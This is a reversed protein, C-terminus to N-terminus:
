SSKSGAEAPFKPGDEGHHSMPMVLIRWHDEPDAIHIAKFKNVPIRLNVQAVQLPEIARALLNRDLFVGFLFGPRRAPPEDWQGKGDCNDCDVKGDECHCDFQIEYRCEDCTGEARGTGNCCKCTMTGTNSCSKCEHHKVMREVPGAWEKLAALDLGRPPATFDDFVGCIGPSMQELLPAENIVDKLAVMIWGDTAITWAQGHIVVSFPTLLKPRDPDRSCFDQLQEATFPIEPNM